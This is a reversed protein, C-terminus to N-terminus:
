PQEVVLARITDAGLIHRLRALLMPRARIIERRWSATSPRVRMTGDKWSVTAARAIAPGAIMQWAFAVKAESAPQEALLTRLARAATVHLSDM